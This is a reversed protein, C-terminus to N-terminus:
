PVRHHTLGQLVGADVIMDGVSPIKRGFGSLPMDHQLDALM